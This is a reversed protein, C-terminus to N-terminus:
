KLYRLKGKVLSVRCDVSLVSKWRYTMNGTWSRDDGRDVVQRM